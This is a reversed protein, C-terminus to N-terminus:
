GGLRRLADEDGKLFIKPKRVVSSLFSNGDSLGRRFEDEQYTVPTIERATQTTVDALADSVVYTDAEGIVMLDVDSDPRDQGAAVSGYVFAVAIDERDLAEALLPIIGVARRVLERLSPLFPSDTAASYVTSNGIREGHVLGLRELRKLERYVPGYPLGCHRELERIHSPKAGPLLLCALLRARTPSGLLEGLVAEGWSKTKGTTTRM